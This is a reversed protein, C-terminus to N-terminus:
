NSPLIFKGDINEPFKTCIGSWKFVNRPRRSRCGGNRKARALMTKETHLPKFAHPLNKQRQQVILLHHTCKVINRKKCLFPAEFSFLSLSLFFISPFFFVLVFVILCVVVLVVFTRMRGGRECLEMRWRAIREVPNGLFLHIFHLQQSSKNCMLLLLVFLLLYIFLCVFM